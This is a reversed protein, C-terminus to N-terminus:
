REDTWRAEAAAIRDRARAKGKATATAGVAALLEVTGEGSHRDSQSTTRSYRNLVAAPRKV